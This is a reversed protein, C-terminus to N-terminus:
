SNYAFDIFGSNPNASVLKVNIKQGVELGNERRVIM